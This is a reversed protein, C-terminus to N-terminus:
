GNNKDKETYRGASRRILDLPHRGRVSQRPVASGNADQTLVPGQGTQFETQNRSSRLKTHLPRQTKGVTM